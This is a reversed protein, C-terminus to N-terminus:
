VVLETCGWDVSGLQESQMLVSGVVLIPRSILDLLSYPYTAAASLCCRFLRRDLYSGLLQKIETIM